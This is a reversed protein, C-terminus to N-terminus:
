ILCWNLFFCKSFLFSYEQEPRNTDKFFCHVSYMFQLKLCSWTVVETRTHIQFSTEASHVDSYVTLESDPETTRKNWNRSNEMVFGRFLFRCSLSSHKWMVDRRGYQHELVIFRRGHQHGLGTRQSNFEKRIWVSGKTGILKCSHQGRSHFRERYYFGPNSGRTLIKSVGVWRLRVSLSQGPFTQKM